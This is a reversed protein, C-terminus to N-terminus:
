DEPKRRWKIILKENIRSKTPAIIEVKGKKNVKSPEISIFEYHKTADCRNEDLILDFASKIKKLEKNYSDVNNKTKGSQLTEVTPRKEIEELKSKLRPCNEIITSYRIETKKAKGGSKAGATLIVNTIYVAIEFTTENATYSKGKFLSNTELPMFDAKAPKKGEARADLINKQRKFYATQTMRWLQYLYPTKVTMTDSSTDYGIYNLVSYRSGDDITGVYGQLPEFLKELYLVGATKRDLDPPGGYLTRPDDTFKELVGKVYFTIDGGKIFEELPNEVTNKMIANLLSFAKISIESANPTTLEGEDFQAKKILGTDPDIYSKDLTGMKSIRGPAFADWLEASSFFALNGGKIEMIAGSKIAQEKLARRTNRGETQRKIQASKARASRLAQMFLSTELLNGNDDTEAADFLDDMTAGNYKPDNLEATLYPELEDLEQVLKLWESYDAELRQYIETFRKYEDSNLFTNIASVAGTIPTLSGKIVEQMAATGKTVEQMIKASKGAAQAAAKFTKIAESKAIEESISKQISSVHDIIAQQNDQITKIPQLTKETREQLKGAIIRGTERVTNTLEASKATKAMLSYDQTGERDPRATQIQQEIKEAISLVKEELNGAAELQRLYEFQEMTIKNWLQTTVDEAIRNLEENDPRTATMTQLIQIAKAPTLDDAPRGAMNAALQIILLQELAKFFNAKHVEQADDAQTRNRDKM